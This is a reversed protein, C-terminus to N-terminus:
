PTVTRQTVAGSAADLVVTTGNTGDAYQSLVWSGGPLATRVTGTSDSVAVYRDACIGGASNIMHLPQGALPLGTSSRLEATLAPLPLTVDAAQAAALTRAVSTVPEDACVGPWVTYVGPFLRGATRPAGTVCRAAGVTTCEAFGIRGEDFNPSALSLGLTSPWVHGPASTFGVRLTAASDYTVNTRTVQAAVVGASASTLAQDGRRGVHGPQNLDVSYSGPVLDVFLACGDVGTQRTSGGPSLTVTVGSLPGGTANRVDVALVGRNSALGNPGLGLAKLTDSRVPPVRGMGPWTVVVTVLKYVLQGGTGACVNTSSGASVYNANRQVTYRTGAVTVQWTAAGDPIGREGTEANLALAPLVRMREIEATALSTATVRQTNGKAVQLVQVATGASVAAVVAFVFMAVMAEVLGFGADGAGLRAQDM